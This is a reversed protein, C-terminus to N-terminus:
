KGWGKRLVQRATNAMDSNTLWTGGQSWSYTQGYGKTWAPCGPEAVITGAPANEYDEVTELTEPREPEPDEPVDTMDQLEYHKGNPTLESPMTLAPFGTRLPVNLIRGDIPAIMVREGSGISCTAGALAHKEVDWEVDAMTPKKFVKLLVEAAALSEQTFVGPNEASLQIKEEAWQYALKELNDM